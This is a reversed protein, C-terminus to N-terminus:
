VQYSGKIGGGELSLLRLGRQVSALAPTPLVGAGAAGTGNDPQGPRASAEMVEAESATM